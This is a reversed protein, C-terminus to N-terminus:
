VRKVKAKKPLDFREKNWKLKRKIFQQVTEDSVNVTMGKCLTVKDRLNDVTGFYTGSIANDLLLRNVIVPITAESVESVGALMLLLGTQFVVSEHLNEPRGNKFEYNLSM